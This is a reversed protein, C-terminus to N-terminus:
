AGTEPARMIQVGNIQWGEATQLMEYGLTHFRGQADQMLVMQWMRGGIERLELYKVSQPRWVMPYGQQVMSGFRDASGFMRQINPSAYSFATAFDDQLFADIQSQIVGEIASDPADQAPAATACLALAVVAYFKWLHTRM